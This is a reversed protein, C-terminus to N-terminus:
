KVEKLRIQGDAQKYDNPSLRRILIMFLPILNKWHKEEVDAEAEYLRQKALKEGWVALEAKRELNQPSKTKWHKCFRKPRSREEGKCLGSFVQLLQRVIWTRVLKRLALGVQLLIAIWLWHGPAPGLHVQNWCLPFQAQQRTSAAAQLEPIDLYISIRPLPSQRTTNKSSDSWRLHGRRRRLRGETWVILARGTEWDSVDGLNWLRFTCVPQEGFIQSILHLNSSFGLLIRCRAVLVCASFEPWDGSFWSLSVVLCVLGGCACLVGVFACRTLTCKCADSWVAGWAIDCM